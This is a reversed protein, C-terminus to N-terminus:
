APPLSCGGCIEALRDCIEDCNEVFNPADLPRRLRWFQVLNATELLIERHWDSDNRAVHVFGRYMADLLLNFKKSGAIPEISIDRGEELFFLHKVPVPQPACNGPEVYSKGPVSAIPASKTVALLDISKDFLKMPKGDPLAIAKAEGLFVPLTDDCIYGFGRAALAAALTSKGGGSPATFALAQDGCAVASAHLPLLRQFWAVAGFVTGWLYLDRESELVESVPEVTVSEGLRYSFKVGGPTEFRFAQKTMSFHGDDFLIEGQLQNTPGIQSVMAAMLLDHRRAAEDLPSEEDPTTEALSVM